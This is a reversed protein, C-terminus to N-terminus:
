MMVCDSAMLTFVILKNICVGMGEGELVQIEYNEVAPMLVVTYGKSSHPGLHSRYSLLAYLPLFTNIHLNYYLDERPSSPLTFVFAEDYYRSCVPWPDSSVSVPWLLGSLKNSLKDISVCCYATWSLCQM